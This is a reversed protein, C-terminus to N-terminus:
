EELLEFYKCVGKAVKDAIALENKKCKENFYASSMHITILNLPILPPEYHKCECCLCKKRIYESM